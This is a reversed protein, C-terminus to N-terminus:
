APVEIGTVHVGQATGSKDKVRLRIDSENSVEVKNKQTHLPNGTDAITVSLDYTGDGNTDVEKFVQQAASAIITHIEVAGTESTSGDVVFEGNPPITASRSFFDGQSM